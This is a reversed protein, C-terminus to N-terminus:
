LYGRDPRYSRNMERQASTRLQDFSVIEHDVDPGTDVDAHLGLPRRIRVTRWGLHKPAGFDKLPNDAIYVCQRGQVGVQEQVLEFAAPHPKGKGQGLTATYVVLPIWRDLRLAKAKARQSTLPGDTLAAMAVSGHWREIASQADRALAINPSHARYRAVMDTIVTADCAGGCSKLIQDFIHGRVGAEFAAWALAGFDDIGLEQSVWNGVADFGSRVYARELYLTDDIDLVVADVDLLITDVPTSNEVGGSCGTM